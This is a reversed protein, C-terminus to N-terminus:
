SEARMEGDGRMGFEIESEEREGEDGWGDVIKNEGREM